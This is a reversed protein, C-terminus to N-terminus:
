KMVDKSDLYDIESKAINYAAKKTKCCCRHLAFRNGNCVADAQWGNSWFLEINKYLYKKM